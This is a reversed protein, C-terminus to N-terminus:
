CRWRLPTRQFHTSIYIKPFKTHLMNSQETEFHEFLISTGLPTQFEFTQFSYLNLLSQLPLSNHIKNTKFHGRQSYYSFIINFM